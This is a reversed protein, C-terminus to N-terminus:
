IAMLVDYQVIHVPHRFLSLVDAHMCSDLSQPKMVQDSPCFPAYFERRSHLGSYIHKVSFKFGLHPM